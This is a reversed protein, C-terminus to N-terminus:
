WDLWLHLHELAYGLLHQGAVVGILLQPLGRNWLGQM